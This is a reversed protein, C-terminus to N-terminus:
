RERLAGGITAEPTPRLYSCPPSGCLSPKSRPQVLFRACPAGCATVEREVSCLPVRLAAVGALGLWFPFVHIVVGSSSLGSCLPVRRGGGVCPPSLIVRSRRRKRPPAAMVITAAWSPMIPQAVSCDLSSVCPGRM